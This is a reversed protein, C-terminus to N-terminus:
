KRKGLRIIYRQIVYSPLGWAAYWNLVSVMLAVVDVPGPKIALIHLVWDPKMFAFELFLGLVLSAFGMEVSRLNTDYYIMSGVLNFIVYLLIIGRVNVALYHCWGYEAIVRGKEPSPVVMEMAVNVFLASLIFFAYIKMLGSLRPLM